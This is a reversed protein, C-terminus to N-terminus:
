SLLHEEEESYLNQQHTHPFPQLIISQTQHAPFGTASQSVFGPPAQRPIARISYGHSQPPQQSSSLGAFIQTAQHREPTRPHTQTELSELLSESSPESPSEPITSPRLPPNQSPIRTINRVTPQLPSNRHQHLPSSQIPRRIRRDQSIHVPGDNDVPRRMRERESNPRGHAMSIITSGPPSRSLLETSSREDFIDMRFQFLSIGKHSSSFTFMLM